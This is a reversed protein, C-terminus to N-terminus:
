VTCRPDFSLFVNVYEGLIGFTRNVEQRLPWPARRVRPLISSAQSLLRPYDLYLDVVYGASGALLGLTRFGTRQKNSSSSDQMIEMIHPIIQHMWPNLEDKVVRALEGLADLAAATVRPANGRLPLVEIISHLFPHVLRHLATAQFFVVLLRTASEKGCGTNESCRLETILQILIRRMEPLVPGPNVNALRGLLELAAARVSLAEDQMLLFLPPILHSQCLYPDYREDFARVICNRLVFSSDSVAVRLLKQMVEELLLISATGLRPNLRPQLNSLSKDDENEFPLLLFCCTLAAERRVDTSPHSLYQAVADRVFPLLSLGKRSQINGFSRLTRLSLELKLITEPNERMNISIFPSSRLRHSIFVEDVEVNFGADFPSAFLPDCIDKVHTTGALSRSLEQLLRNEIEYAKSPLSGAISKLCSILDESLGSQFMCDLTNDTHPESHHGLAEIVDAGCHLAETRVTKLGDCILSFIENTNEYIDGVKMTYGAKGFELENSTEEGKANKRGAINRFQLSTKPVYCTGREHECVALTLQGLAFYATPRLDVSARAAPVTKAAEMIYNLSTELYRRRFSGPCRRALRPQM